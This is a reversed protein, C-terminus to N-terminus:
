ASAAWRSSRSSRGARTPRPPGRWIGATSSRPECEISREVASRQSAGARRRGSVRRRRSPFSRRSIRPPRRLRRHPPWSRRAGRIGGPGPCGAASRSSRRCRSLARGIAGPAPSPHGLGCVCSVRSDTPAAAAAAALADAVVARSAHQGSRRASPVVGVRPTAAHAILLPQAGALIPRATSSRCSTTMRKGPRSRRPGPSATPPGPSRAPSSRCCPRSM